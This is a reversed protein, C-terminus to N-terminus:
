VESSLLYEEYKAFLARVILEIGHKGYVTLLHKALCRAGLGEESGGEEDYGVALIVTRSPEFGASLLADIAALIAILNSKDDESGRGWIYHGDYHGSFPPHTWQDLTL